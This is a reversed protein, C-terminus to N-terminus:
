LLYYIINGEGRFLLRFFLLSFIVMAFISTLYNANTNMMVLSNSGLLFLRVTQILTYLSDLGMVSTTLIRKNTITMFITSSFATAGGSLIIAVVKIIRKALMYGINGTLDYFIYILSLALAIFVLTLTNKKYSM